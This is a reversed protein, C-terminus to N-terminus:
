DMRLIIDFGAMDLWILDVLTDPRLVNVICYKYVRKTTISKDVYTSVLFPKPINEHGFWFKYGCVPVCLIPLVLILYCILMMPSFM